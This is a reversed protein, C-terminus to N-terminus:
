LVDKIDEESWGLKRYKDALEKNDKSIERNSSGGCGASANKNKIVRVMAKNEGNEKEGFVITKAKELRKGILAPDSPLKYDNFEEMLTNWKKDDPDNKKNFEPNKEVFSDIQRQMEKKYNRKEQEERPVYGLSPLLKTILKASAKIEDESWGEKEALEKTIADLDQKTEVKEGEGEKKKIEALVQSRKTFEPLLDDYKKAKDKLSALEESTIEDGNEEETKKDEVKEEESVEEEDAGKEEKKLDKQEDSM